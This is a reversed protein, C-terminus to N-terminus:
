RRVPPTQSARKTGGTDKERTRRSAFSPAVVNDGGIRMAAAIRNATQDAAALIPDAALHAYRETTRTQKHGLLKAVMFLSQGDAVAFSAFSHRLDHLRLGPFGADERVREWAKQLGTYHADEGLQRQKDGPLVWTSVRPLAKLLEVAASPLHVIKERTKSDPLRLCPREFDIYSWQLTMIESKRCGTLVLLRLGAAASPHLRGDREMRAMTDAWQAVEAESLFREKKEGKYLPVGKAPNEPILKRTVAFQLMAGLVALSRAATGRGGEVIARGHKKTKIDARSKGAAVDAQFKAVDAQTLAKAVHRGLLPKIHREINSRDAGWSSAKKNPKDAPGDRLYLAALENVILSERAIHREASPDGGRAVEKLKDSALDRAEDPTLVGVRGLVLRRTRGERTRYQVLYSSAGSPKARIGFGKIAGDGTDWTFVDRGSPDPRIADVVRKTLKPM